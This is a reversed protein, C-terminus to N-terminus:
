GWSSTSHYGNKHVVKKHCKKHVVKKHCKRHVMLKKFCSSDHNTTPSKVTPKGYSPKIPTFCSQLASASPMTRDELGEVLLKAERHKRAPAPGGVVHRWLSRFMVRDGQPRPSLSPEAPHSRRGRQTLGRAEERDTGREGSRAGEFTGNTSPSGGRM